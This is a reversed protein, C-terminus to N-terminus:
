PLIEENAKVRMDGMFALLANIQAQTLHPVLDGSVVRVEGDSYVVQVAYHAGAQEEGLPDPSYLRVEIAAIRSPIKAQQTPFAM